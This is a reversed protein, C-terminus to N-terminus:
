HQICVLMMIFAAIWFGMGSLATAEGSLVVQGDERWWLQYPKVYRRLSLKDARARGFSLLPVVVRGTGYGLVEFGVRVLVSGIFDLAM